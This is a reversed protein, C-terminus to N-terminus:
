QRDHRFEHVMKVLVSVPKGGLTGPEFTSLRAAILAEDDLGRPDISRTV